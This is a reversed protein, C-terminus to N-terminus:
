GNDSGETNLRILKEHTDRANRYDDVGPRRVNPNGGKDHYAAYEAFPKLAEGAELLAAQLKEIRAKADRLVDPSVPADIMEIGDIESQLREVLNDSAKTMSPTM